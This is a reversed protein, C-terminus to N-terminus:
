NNMQLLIKKMQKQLLVKLALLNKIKQSVVHKKRRIVTTIVRITTLNEKIQNVVLHNRKQSVANQQQVKGMQKVVIKQTKIVYKKQRKLKGKAAVHKVHM